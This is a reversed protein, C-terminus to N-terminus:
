LEASFNLCDNLLSTSRGDTASSFGGLQIKSAALTTVLGGAATAIFDTTQSGTQSEAVTPNLANPAAVATISPAARMPTPFRVNFRATSSGNFIGVSGNGAVLFYRQCKALTTGYDEFEFPTAVSGAELQVGTIQWARDTAGALNTQGVARNATTTGWTTQLTGSTLSPGAALWFYLGLSTANDNDFAGTTDAPFTITKKEWTNAANITYSASVQRNNDTDELEAIYTGTTSGKVWFTLSFAKASATGKLFQQLNQGELRHQIILRDTTALSTDATTCTMKLSKRFGSGTPADNEVTQTWAGVNVVDALYRDATYYAGLGGGTIGATSTGRQHVQMAGNIVVNRYGLSQESWAIKATTISSDALKATTISGDAIKATTVANSALKAETISDDAVINSGNSIATIRGKSDVTANVITYSGAAVGTNSLTTTLSGATTTIDGTLAPFRAAALVGTANSTSLDVSSLSALSGLGTVDSTTINLLTKAQATTIAIPSSNSGSNNALFTNNPQTSLKTLAVSNDALKATTISDDIIKATTVSNDALKATTISNDPITTTIATAGSGTIAGSLTITQNSSIYNNPNAANYPTYSLATTIDSNNLTIAGTRNNFSSVFSVVADTYKYWRNIPKLYILKAIRNTPTLTFTQVLLSDTLDEESQFTINYNGVNLITLEQANNLPARINPTSILTVDATSTINLCSYTNELSLGATVTVIPSPNLRAVTTVPISNTTGYEKWRIPSVSILTYEKENDLQLARKYLENSNISTLALRETANNFVWRYPHHNDTPQVDKHAITM